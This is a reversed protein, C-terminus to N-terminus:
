VSRPGRREILNCEYEAAQALLDGELRGVVLRGQCMM